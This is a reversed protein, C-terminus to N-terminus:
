SAHTHCTGSRQGKGDRRETENPKHLSHGQPKDARDTLCLYLAAKLHLNAWKEKGTAKKKSTNSLHLSLAEEQPYLEM